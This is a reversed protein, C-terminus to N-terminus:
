NEYPYPLGAEERAEIGASRREDTKPLWPCDNTAKKVVSPKWERGDNSIIRPRSYQIDFQNNYAQAQCYDNYADHWNEKWQGTPIGGSGSRTNMSFNFMLRKKDCKLVEPNFHRFTTELNGNQDRSFGIVHSEWQWWKTKERVEDPIEVFAISIDSGGDDVILIQANGLPEGKPTRQAPGRWTIERNELQVINIPLSTLKETFQNHYEDEPSATACEQLTINTFVTTKKSSM